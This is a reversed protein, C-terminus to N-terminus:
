GSKDAIWEDVVRGLLTLPLSGNGLVVEHFERLDFADGLRERAHERLRLIELQGIKYACAQGPMVIYREIESIIDGEPMGTNALMYEIAQERTWRKHHLGTDVVLRNARFLDAQLYGIRDFPDEQFGNEAAVREAYLAWGEIYAVFPVVKRFFPVGELEQAIAIQFHHGPVAEHYALTRMGFKPVEKVDRLNAFFVGPKSGDMPAPQYYAGPATEQKFVPIREVKVGKGPRLSFLHSMGSDIEDIITQYDALIQERGEDTDPYLFRQEENLAQMLKAFDNTEYGEGGLINKMETQIRDVERLGIDHIEDASLETTTFSRLKWAYYAEGEPLKWVGDDTSASPELAAYHDIMRQYAPYVTSELEGALAASLEQREGDDLDDLGAIKEAYHTYLVHENPPPAIFERMENLVHTMVFKPPVVGQEERKTVSELVQDFAMGFKSIRALYDEAGEEDEIAHQNIMFDPLGSQIGAFQNVPYDHYAFALGEAQDALFYELVDYSLQDDLTERDYEHLLALNGAVMKKQKETAAVSYQDLDDNHFTIGAPELIRMSSLLQPHELAFEVFVRGYFHEISWPKGWVTPVCFVLGAVLLLGGGWLVLKKIRRL